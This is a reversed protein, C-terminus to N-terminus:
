VDLARLKNILKAAAFLHPGRIEIDKVDFESTEVTENQAKVGLVKEYKTSKEDKRILHDWTEDPLLVISQVEKLQIGITSIYEVEGFEEEVEIETSFVMIMYQLQKPLYFEQWCCLPSLNEEKINLGIEEYAERVAAQKLNENKDVHGGPFVWINNYVGKKRKQRQSILLYKRGSQKFKIIPLVVSALRVPAANKTGIRSVNLLLRSVYGLSDARMTFAGAPVKYETSELKFNLLEEKEIEEQSKDKNEKEKLDTYRIYEQERIEQTLETDPSRIIVDGGNLEEVVIEPSINKRIGAVKFIDTGFRM